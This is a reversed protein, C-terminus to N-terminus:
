PRRGISKKDLFISPQAAQALAGPLLAASAALASLLTARRGARLIADRHRTM